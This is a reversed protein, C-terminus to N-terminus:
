PRRDGIRECLGALGRFREALARAERAEMGFTLLTEFSILRSADAYPVVSPFQVTLGNVNVAAEATSGTWLCAYFFMENLLRRVEGALEAPISAPLEPWAVPPTDRVIQRALTWAADSLAENM